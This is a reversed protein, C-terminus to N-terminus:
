LAQKFFEKQRRYSPVHGLLNLNSAQERSADLFTAAFAIKIITSDTPSYVDTFRM